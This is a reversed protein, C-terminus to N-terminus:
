IIKVNITEKFLVSKEWSMNMFSDSVVCLALLLVLYAFYTYSLLTTCKGNAMVMTATSVCWENRTKGGTM